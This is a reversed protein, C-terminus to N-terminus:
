ANMESRGASPTRLSTDKMMPKSTEPPSVASALESALGPSLGADFDLALDFVGAVGAGIASTSWADNSISGLPVEPDLVRRLLARQDGFHAFAQFQHDLGSRESAM